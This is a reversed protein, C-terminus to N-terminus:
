KAEMIDSLTKIPHKDRVADGQKVVRCFGIKQHIKKQYQAYNDNNCGSVDISSIEPVQKLVLDNLTKQINKDAFEHTWIPHGIIFEAAEHIEGFKETLMIGSTISILALTSIEKNM